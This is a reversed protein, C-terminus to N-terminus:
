GFHKMFYNFDDIEDCAKDAAVDQRSVKREFVEHQNRKEDIEDSVQCDTELVNVRKAIIKHTLYEANHRKAHAKLTRDLKVSENEVAVVNQFESFEGFVKVFARIIDFCDFAELFPHQNATVNSTQQSDSIKSATKQNEAIRHNEIQNKSLLNQV